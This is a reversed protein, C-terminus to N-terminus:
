ERPLSAEGTEPQPILHEALYSRVEGKEDGCYYFHQGGWFIVESVKLLEGTRRLRVTDGVQFM